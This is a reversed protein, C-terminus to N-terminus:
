SRILLSAYNYAESRPPVVSYSLRAEKRNSILLLSNV